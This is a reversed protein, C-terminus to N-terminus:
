YINWPSTHSKDTALHM